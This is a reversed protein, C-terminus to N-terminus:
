TAVTNQRRSQSWNARDWCLVCAIQNNGDNKRRRRRQSESGRRWLSRDSHGCLLLDDFVDNDEIDFDISVRGFYRGHNISEVAHNRKVECHMDTGSFKESRPRMREGETVYHM